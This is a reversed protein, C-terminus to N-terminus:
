GGGSIEKKANEREQRRKALNAQHQRQVLAARDAQAIAYPFYKLVRKYDAPWNTRLELMMDPRLSIGNVRRSSMSPIQIKRRSLYSMVDKDQWAIIPSFRRLSQCCGFHPAFALKGDRYRVGWDATFTLYQRRSPSDNLKYGYGVWDLGSLERAKDEVERATVEPCNPVPDCFTGDRLFQSLTYHQLLHVKVGFHKEAYSCWYDTYDMGPVFYMFFAQLKKGARKCLDLVVLSDKGGSYAILLEEADPLRGTRM